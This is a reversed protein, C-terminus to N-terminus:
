TPGCSGVMGQVGTVTINLTQCRAPSQCQLDNGCALLCFRGKIHQLCRYTPCDSDQVCAAGAALAGPQSAVCFNGIRGQSVLPVCSQDRPCSEQSDCTVAGSPPICQGTECITGIPCGEQVVTLNDSADRGCVLAIPRDTPTGCKREGPLCSFADPYDPNPTTCAGLGLGILGVLILLGHGLCVLWSATATAGRTM